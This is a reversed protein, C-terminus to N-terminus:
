LHLAVFLSDVESACIARRRDILGALTAAEGIVDPARWGKARLDRVGTDGDSKSLKQEPTKM